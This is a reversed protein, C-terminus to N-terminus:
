TKPHNSKLKIDEVLVHDMGELGIPSYALIEPVHDCAQYVDPYGLVVTSRKPPSYLTQGDGGSVTVCTGETGVLAKAM